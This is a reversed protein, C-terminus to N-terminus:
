PTTVREFRETRGLLSIGIYGRAWLVSTDGDEFWLYCAYTSGSNGDYIRGDVWQGEGPDFRFDWFMDIGVFRRGQLAPDPNNEDLQEPEDYAVVRGVYRDGERLLEVQGTKDPFWYRGLLDDGQTEASATLSSALFILVGVVLLSVRPQM